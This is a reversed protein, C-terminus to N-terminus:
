EREAAVLARDIADRALDRAAIRDPARTTFSTVALARRADIPRSYHSFAAGSEFVVARHYWERGRSDRVLVSAGQRPPADGYVRELRARHASLTVEALPPELALLWFDLFVTCAADPERDARACGYRYSALRTESAGPGVPVLSFAAADASVGAAAPEEPHGYRVVRDGLSVQSWTWAFPTLDIVPRTPGGACAATALAALAGAARAACRRASM